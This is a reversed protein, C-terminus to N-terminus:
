SLKKWTSWGGGWNNRIYTESTAYQCSLQIGFMYHADSGVITFVVAASENGTSAHPSNYIPHESDDGACVYLGNPFSNYDYLPNDHYSGVFLSDRVEYPNVVLRNWSCYQKNGGSFRVFIEGDTDMAIQRFWWSDNDNTTSGGRVCICFGYQNGPAGTCSPNFNVVATNFLDNLNSAGDSVIFGTTYSLFNKTRTTM